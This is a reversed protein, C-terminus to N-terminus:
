MKRIRDELEQLTARLKDDSEQDKKIKDCAHLVTTHDRGGFFQGIAPLSSDTLERCLYMAVQRPYAINRSRKKAHLDEVKVQFYSAVIQQIIDLTVEKGNEAPFLDKLAEMAVETTIPQKTLSAYAVVRTLAGELERINTDIRNAISFMVDNPVELQDVLAKKRLIAIRTELDPPQIDTILGWEFRSRLREELKEVEKPPRDSSLIIQKNDDHLANFTHFFEEQTSTKGSIFQIDDVMLVDITRYKDRFKEPHGDRISNILENTFKESSVYLVRMEPHNQLIRNGIAHMLHTKGLGVGGYLFLPNYGKGPNEAVSLSAAHALQNSKGTVFTEFTYKPNLTSADGPAIQSPTDHASPGYSPRQEEAARPASTEDILTGQVPREANDHTLEAARARAGNRQRPKKVRVPEASVPEDEDTAVPLDLSVLEIKRPAHLVDQVADELIPVYRDQIWKKSFDNPAALTLANEDLRVPTVPELWQECIVPSLSEQVKVLVKLWTAQLENKTM